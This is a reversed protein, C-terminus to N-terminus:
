GGPQLDAAAPPATAQAEELFKWSALLARVAPEDTALGPATYAARLVYVRSGHRMIWYSLKLPPDQPRVRVRYNLELAPEALPTEHREPEGEVIYYSRTWQELQPLLSDPLGKVFVSAAGDLSFVRVTLLSSHRSRLEGDFRMWGSPVDYQCLRERDTVQTPAGPGCGPPLLLSAAVLAPHLGLTSTRLAM